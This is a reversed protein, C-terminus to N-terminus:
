VYMYMWYWASGQGLFGVITWQKPFFHSRFNFPVSFFIPALRHHIYLISKLHHLANEKLNSLQYYIEQELYVVDM